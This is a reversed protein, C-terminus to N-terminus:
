ERAGPRAAIEAAVSAGPPVTVARTAASASESWAHLRYRGPPVDRIEYSNPPRFTAFYPSPAVFVVAREAPHLSCYIRVVGPNGLAIARKEGRRVVGLDFPNSESYSFIRHYIRSSNALRISEGASVALVAPSLGSDSAHLVARPRQKAPRATAELPELFVLLPESGSGLAGRDAALHGRVSGSPESPTPLPISVASCATAAVCALPLLARGLSLLAARLVLRPPSAAPLPRRRPADSGQPSREAM